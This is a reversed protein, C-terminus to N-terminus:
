APLADFAITTRAGPGEIPRTGHWMCSPFLVLRGPAPQIFREPNAGPVAFRPEGFRIWGPMGDADRVEHPTTVYYASSIWGSRHVHNVHWGGSALQVSWADSLRAKGTNRASVPHDADTGLARCYDALPAEFAKLSAQIVADSDTLLGRTTRSGNRLSEDFPPTPSRHRSALVDRL